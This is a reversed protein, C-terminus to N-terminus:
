YDWVRDANKHEKAEIASEIKVGFWNAIRLIYTFADIVEHALRMPDSVSKWSKRIEKAIEGIEEALLIVLMEPTDTFRRERRKTELHRQLVNLSMEPSFVADM